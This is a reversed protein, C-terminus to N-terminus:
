RAGSISMSMVEIETYMPHVFSDASVVRLRVDDALAGEVAAIRGGTDLVIAYRFLRFAKKMVTPLYVMGKLQFM